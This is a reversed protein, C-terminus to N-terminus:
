EFLILLNIYQVFLCNYFLLGIYDYFIHNFFSTIILGFYEFVLFEYKYTLNYKKNLLHSFNKKLNKKIWLM